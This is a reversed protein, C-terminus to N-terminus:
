SKATTGIITATRDLSVSTALRSPAVAAAPPVPRNQRLLAAGAAVTNWVSQALAKRSPFAAPDVAPHLLITARLHRHGALRWFHSGLEMDGYWASVPRAGRRAPLGDLEDFVISVPQVLPAVTEDCEAVAFFPSRFPLVRAGDSSTGEPFLILDDGAALRARMSDRERGTERARRSVFVTRGLWAITRVVPWHGVEAKAVFCAELTGGLAPVDLWSTHNCAFVVPRGARHEIRGLVRREVGLAWCVGAWYIRAWWRKGRGPLAILAAQPGACAATWLGAFTVRRGWRLRQMALTPPPLERRFATPDELLATRRILTM